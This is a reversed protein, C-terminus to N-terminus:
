ETLTDMIAQLVRRANETGYAERMEHQLRGLMISFTKAREM